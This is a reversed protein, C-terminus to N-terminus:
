KKEQGPRSRHAHRACTEDVSVAACSHETTKKEDKKKKEQGRVMVAANRPPVGQGGMEWVAHSSAQVARCSLVAPFVRISATMLRYRYVVNM